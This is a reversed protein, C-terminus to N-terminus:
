EIILRESHMLGDQTVIQVLYVGADCTSVDITANLDLDALVMRGNMDVVQAYAIDSLNGEVSFSSTAPNPKMSFTQEEFTIEDTSLTGNCLIDIENLTLERDWIMVDDLAGDFFYSAGLVDGRRGLSGPNVSYGIPDTATGSYTGQDNVCDVFIDMDTEGRVIFVIHYWGGTQLTTTGLKTRRNDTDIGQGTGYSGTIIGTSSGNMYIGAHNEAEVSTNLFVSNTPTLDDFRVWAAISIPLDPKLQNVNPFDLFQDIGNFNAASIPNGFRDSSLTANGTLDYGNGSSDALNTDFKYYVLLSDYISQANVNSLAFLAFLCTISNKIKM